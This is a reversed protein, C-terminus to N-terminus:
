CWKFFEDAVESSSGARVNARRWKKKRSQRITWKFLQQLLPLQRCSCVRCLYWRNSPPSTFSGWSQNGRETLSQPLAQGYSALRWRGTSCECGEKRCTTNEQVKSWQMRDNGGAPNCGNSQWANKLIFRARRWNHRESGCGHLASSSTWWNDTLMMLTLTPLSWVQRITDTYSIVM